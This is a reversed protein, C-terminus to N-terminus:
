HPVTSELSEPHIPALFSVNARVLCATATGGGTAHADQLIDVPKFRVRLFPKGQKRVVPASTPDTEVVAGPRLAIVPKGRADRCWLGGPDRDVVLWFRQRYTGRAGTLTISLFDGRADASAVDAVQSSGPPIPGLVGAGLVVGLLVPALLVPGPRLLAPWRWAPPPLRHAM